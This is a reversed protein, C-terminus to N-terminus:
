FDAVETANCCADLARVLSLYLDFEHTNLADIRVDHLQSRMRRAEIGLNWRISYFVQLDTPPPDSEGAVPAYPEEQAELVDTRAELKAIRTELSEPKSTPAKKPRRTTKRM